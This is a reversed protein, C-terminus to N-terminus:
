PPPLTDIDVVVRKLLVDVPQHANKVDKAVRQWREGHHPDAKVCRALVDKQSDANGHQVEFKYYQAWVDGIDPDLTVARLFWSRAKDVKRDSWFLQAVAAVVYADHDCRKLADASRSKRQPRPAM